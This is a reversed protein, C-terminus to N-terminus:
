VRGNGLYGECLLGLLVTSIQALVVYKPELVLRVATDKQADYLSTM